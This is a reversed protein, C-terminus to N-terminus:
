RMRRSFVDPSKNGDGPVLNSAFSHFAVISGDASLDPRYSPGDPAGGTTGVTALELVRSVRDFVYIDADPNTDDPLLQRVSFFAVYRGDASLAPQFSGGDRRPGVSVRETVGTTRDHVFVDASNNTDDTVLNTAKSWFAVVNGDDSIAPDFSNGNAEAGGIGLSVRETSKSRLDRVFIDSSMNRDGRVLNSALSDFAILRGDGSIAPSYSGENAQKGRRGVSVRRTRKKTLDRVFIDPKSNSDGHVLDSAYSSFAVDSGESSLSPEHSGANARSKIGKSVLTTVDKALDHVFIDAAGNRDNAVLSTADSEFAVYRGDGSLSPDFSGRNAGVSVRRTTGQQLDHVFVDSVGNSDNAVLNSADSDFAILSGSHDVSASYSPGNGEAGKDTVSIRVASADQAQVVAAVSGLMTSVGILALLLRAARGFM